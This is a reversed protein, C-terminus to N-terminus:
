PRPSSRGTPERLVRARMLALLRAAEESRYREVAEELLDYAMVLRGREMLDRGLRVLVAEHSPMTSAFRSFEEPGMPRPAGGSAGGTIRAHWLGPLLWGAELSLHVEDIVHPHMLATRASGGRLFSDFDIFAAGTRAASRKWAAQMPGIGGPLSGAPGLRAKLAGALRRRFDCGRDFRCAALSREVGAAGHDPALRTLDSQIPSTIIVAAGTRAAAEALIDTWAQSAAAPDCLAPGPPGQRLRKRGAVRLLAQPWLVRSRALFASREVLFRWARHFRPAQVPWCLESASDYRDNSGLYLIVIDPRYARAALLYYYADMTFSGARGMNIVVHRTRGPASRLKEELMAPASAAPGWPWGWVSSEGFVAVRVENDPKGVKLRVADPGLSPDDGPLGNVLPLANLYLGERLRYPMPLPLFVRHFVEVGASALLISALSLALKKPLASM